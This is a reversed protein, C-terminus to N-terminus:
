PSTAVLNRDGVVVLRTGTWVVARLNFPETGFLTQTYPTAPATWDSGNTSRVVRGSSGVAVFEAGTWVVDNLTFATSSTRTVWSAGGDASTLLTGAAGVVVILGLAAVAGRLTQTSGSARLTWLLGDPSTMLTGNQGLAVWRDGVWVARTLGATAPIARVTWTLADSSTYVNGSAFGASNVLLTPSAALGGNYPVNVGCVWNLGDSSTCVRQNAAVQALAVFRGLAPSWVIDIVPDISGSSPLAGYSWDVGNSSVQIRELAPSVMLGAPSRAIRSWYREGPNARTWSVGDASVYAESANALSAVAVFRSGDHVVSEIISDIRSASQTWNLGDTSYHMAHSAAGVWLGGVVAIGRLIPASGAGRRTWSVGDPSTYHAQQSGASPTASAVILSGSSGLGVFNDTTGLNRVTWNDGDPSTALLGSEGAVVFQTGTWVAHGLRSFGTSGLGRNVWTIGDNSSAISGGGGVAVWRSASAVVAGLSGVGTPLARPTWVLGDPSTYVTLSGGVAVFQRGDWAADAVNAIGVRDTWILLDSSSRLSSGASVFKGAGFALAGTPAGMRRTTWAIGPTTTDAIVTFSASSTHSGSATVVQIPGSTAGVPVAVDIDTTSAALVTAAVGNFRVTNGATGAVFGLGEIRVQLGAAGAAPTFGSILPPSAPAPAPPPPPPPAPSPAPATPIAADGGGGGGCASVFLAGLTLLRRRPDITTM